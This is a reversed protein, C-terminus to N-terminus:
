PDGRPVRRSSVSTRTGQIDGSRSHGNKGNCRGRQTYTCYEEVTQVGLAIILTKSKINSTRFMVKELIGILKVPM